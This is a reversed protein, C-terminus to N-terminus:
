DRYTVEVLDAVQAGTTKAASGNVVAIEIYYESDMLPVGAALYAASLTFIDRGHFTNSAKPLWFKPNNLHGHL